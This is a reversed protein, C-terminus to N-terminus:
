HQNEKLFADVDFLQDAKLEPGFVRHFDHPDMIREGALSAERLALNFQEIYKRSSIAHSSLMSSLEGIRDQLHKQVVALKYAIESLKEDSVPRDLGAKILSSLMEAKLDPIGSVPETMSSVVGTNVQGSSSREVAAFAGATECIQKRDPWWCHRPMQQLNIGFEGYTFYSFRVLFHSSRPIEVGAPSLIRNAIQHCVGAKGYFAVIGAEDGGEICHALACSGRGTCLPATGRGLSAPFGKCDWFHGTTRCRVFTHYLGNRFEGYGELVEIASPPVPVDWQLSYAV